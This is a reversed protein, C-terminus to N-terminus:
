WCTVSLFLRRHQVDAFLFTDSPKCWSSHAEIHQLVSFVVTLQWKGCLEWYLSCSIVLWVRAASCVKVNWMIM